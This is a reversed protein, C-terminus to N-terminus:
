GGCVTLESQRSSYTVAAYTSGLSIEGGISDYGDISRLWKRGVTDYVQLLLCPFVLHVAIVLFYRLCTCRLLIRPKIAELSDQALLSPAAVM